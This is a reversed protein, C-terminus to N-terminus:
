VIRKEHYLRRRYTLTTEGLMQYKIWRQDRFFGGIGRLGCYFDLFQNIKKIQYSCHKTPLLNINQELLGPDLSPAADVFPAFSNLASLSNDTHFFHHISLTGVSM